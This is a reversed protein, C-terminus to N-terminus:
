HLGDRQTVITYIYIYIYIYKYKNVDICLLIGCCQTVVAKISHTTVHKPQMLLRFMDGRVLYFNNNSVITSYQETYVYIFIYIYVSRHIKNSTRVGFLGTVLNLQKVFVFVSVAINSYGCCIYKFIVAAASVKM